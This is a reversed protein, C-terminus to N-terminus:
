FNQIFNELLIFLLVIGLLVCVGLTYSLFYIFINRKQGGFIDKIVWGSYGYALVFFLFYVFASNFIAKVGMGVVSIMLQFGMTYCLIVVIEFFYFGKKRFFLRLWFATFLIIFLISYGYNKLLWDKLDNGIQTDTIHFNINTWHTWSNFITFIFSTFFLFLIPKMLKTRDATLYELLSEKPRFLLIKLTYLFGKDYGFVNLFEQKVYSYDIRQIGTPENETSNEQPCDNELHESVNESISNDLTEIETNQM